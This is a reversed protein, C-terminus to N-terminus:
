VVTVRNSYYKNDFETPTFDWANDLIDLKPNFGPHGNYGSNKEHVHGLTHAGM